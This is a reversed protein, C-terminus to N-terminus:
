MIHYNENIFENIESEKEQTIKKLNETEIRFRENEKKLLNIEHTIKEYETPYDNEDYKNIKNSFENLERKLEEIEKNLESVKKEYQTYYYNNIILLSTITNFLLITIQKFLIM